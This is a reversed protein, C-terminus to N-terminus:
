LGPLEDAPPLNDLPSAPPPIPEAGAITDSNGIPTEAGISTPSPSAQETDGISNFLEDIPPQSPSSSVSTSPMDSVGSYQSRFLNAMDSLSEILGKIPSVVTAAQGGFSQLPQSIAQGSSTLPTSDTLPNFESGLLPLRASVGATWAFFLMIGAIAVGTGAIIKRTHESRSIIFQIIKKAM